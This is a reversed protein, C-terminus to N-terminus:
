TSGSGPSTVRFGAHWGFTIRIAGVITASTVTSPEWISTPSSARRSIRSGKPLSSSVSDLRSRETVDGLGLYAIAQHALVRVLRRRDRLREALSQAEQLHDLVRHPERLPQIARRAALRLDLALGLTEPSEPLHALATLAREFWDAADRNAWRALARLGALRCSAAAKEWIQGREAHHALLEVHEDLRDPYVREIADVIQAHLTRRREQLLSGYAVEHTLAHKFTYELEPYLSAEYLFDAAQLAVLGREIEDESGEAIARLLVDPVDKGIVAATQLLRKEAPPLRDVRSALVAQVTAPVQVDRVELALRYAGREGSLAGGEVLSRVIEELFLPNGETRAILLAKLPELAQDAGLLGHLLEDASERELPDVHVQTYYATHGWGHGYEPRYNSWCCSGPM